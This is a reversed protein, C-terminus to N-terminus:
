PRERRGYDRERRLKGGCKEWGTQRCKAMDMEVQISNYAKDDIRKRSYVCPDGSSGFGTTRLKNRVFDPATAHASMWDGGVAV